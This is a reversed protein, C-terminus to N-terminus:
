RKYIKGERMVFTVRTLATIDAAPDGDVAIIDAQYGAALRGVSKGLNLSEAALSTASVIADKPTQRGQRVREVLEDANRGHAGAVADSGMVLKLGPTAVAKRILMTNLRGVQEMSAFTEETYDGVGLFRHKNRLYNQVLVGIHPDFYVGREAMLKLTADDAGTGHEIQTCGAEVAARISESTQAHVMTRLGQAKAEGCLAAFQDRSMVQAAGGRRGVSDIIKVVDARLKKLERVKLRLEDATGSIPTMQVISTLIRPGPLVGRAIADRLHVDGPQGPSQITTFGAMLTLYANEASYLIDEAATQARPEFRGSSGFHWGIHAHVDILGPLLTSTGLDIDVAGPASPEIAAIRAGRVVVTANAIVQGTGDLVRAARIRVDREQTHVVATATLALVALKKSASVCLRLSIKKFCIEAGKRRQTLCANVERTTTTM